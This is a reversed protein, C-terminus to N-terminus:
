AVFASVKEDSWGLDRTFHTRLHRAEVMHLHSVPSESSALVNAWREKFRAWVVPPAAYGALTLRDSNWSMDYYGQIEVAV